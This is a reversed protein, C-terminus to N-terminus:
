HALRGMRGSQFDQIAQRIEDRTNMVFPGQGIVPERLPEGTLVLVRSESASDIRVQDGESHLSVLEVAKATSDGIRIEGKQVILLTTHGAPIAFEVHGGANLQCDWVNIPTFTMAPGPTAFCEGAIVRVTGANDPLAKIPIQSNLIGQYRPPSMKDKAPLNVWLQVMELTGGERAFQASHFEEHVVGSAATMWQVEGPGITGHSGSSDGHELEGQYVITVTEFGRHPHEGVGRTVEAPAFKYPGAYDLLLFPDFEDSDQYSFLSRVPFGDGVWHQPIDSVIGRVSKWM